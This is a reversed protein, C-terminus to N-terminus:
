ADLEGSLAIHVRDRLARVDDAEPDLTKFYFGGRVGVWKMGSLVSLDEESAGFYTILVERLFSEHKTLFGHMFREQQLIREDPDKSWQISKLLAEREKGVNMLRERIGTPLREFHYKKALSERDVFLLDSWLPIGRERIEVVKLFSRIASVPYGLVFGTVAQEKISAEELPNLYSLLEPVKTEMIGLEKLFDGEKEIRDTLLRVNVIFNGHFYVPIGRYQLLHQALAKKNQIEGSLVFAPKVGLAFLHSAFFDAQTLSTEEPLLNQMFTFTDEFEHKM